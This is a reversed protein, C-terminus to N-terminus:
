EIISNLGGLRVARIKNDNSLINDDCASINCLNVLVFYMNVLNSMNTWKQRAIEQFKKKVDSDVTLTIQTKM